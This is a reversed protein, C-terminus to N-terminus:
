NSENITKYTFDNTARHSPDKTFGNKVWFEEVDSTQTARVENFNNRKAWDVITRVAQSGMGEGREGSASPINMNTIVVGSGTQPDRLIVRMFLLGHDLHFELIYASQGFRDKEFPVGLNEILEIDYKKKEPVGQNPKIIDEM